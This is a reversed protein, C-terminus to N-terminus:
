KKKLCLKKPKIFFILANNIARTIINCVKDQTNEKVLELLAMHSNNRGITEYQYSNPHKKDFTKGEKLCVVAVIPSVISTPNDMM